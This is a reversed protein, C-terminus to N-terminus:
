SYRWRELEMAYALKLWSGTSGVEKQTLGNPTAQGRRLAESRMRTLASPCTM